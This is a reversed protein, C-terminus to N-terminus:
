PPAFAGGEEKIVITIGRESFLKECRKLMAQAHAQRFLLNPEVTQKSLYACAWAMNFRHSFSKLM